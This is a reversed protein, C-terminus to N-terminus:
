LSATSLPETVSRSWLFSAGRETRQKTTVTLSVRFSSVSELPRAM